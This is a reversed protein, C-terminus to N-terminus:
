DKRMQNVHAGMFRTAYTDAHREFDEVRKFFRGCCSYVPHREVHLLHYRLDALSNLRVNCYGCVLKRIMDTTFWHRSCVVAPDDLWDLSIPRQDFIGLYVPAPHVAPHVPAPHVPLNVDAERARERERENLLM